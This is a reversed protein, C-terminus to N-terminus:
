AATDRGQQMLATTRKRGTATHPATMVTDTPGTHQAQEVAEIRKRMDQLDGAPTIAIATAM